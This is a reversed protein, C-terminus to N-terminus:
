VKLEVFETEFPTRGLNLCAVTIPLQFRRPGASEPNIYLVGDRELKGPQHSHGSVIVHFGASASAAFRSYRLDPWDANAVRARLFELGSNRAQAEFVARALRGM